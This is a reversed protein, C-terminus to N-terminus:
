KKQLIGRVLTRTQIPSLRSANDGGRSFSSLGSTSGVLTVLVDQNRGDQNERPPNTPRPIGGGRVCAYFSSLAGTSPSLSDARIEADSGFEDCSPTVTVAGATTGNDVFDVLVQAPNNPSGNRADVVTGTEDIEFPWQLFAGVQPRAYGTNETVTTANDAFQSLKYRYIQAEGQWDTDTTDTDIAYVVLSYTSGAICVTQLLPDASGDAIASASTRCLNDIGVPLPDTRWFALVPRRTASNMAAPIYNAIGPCVTSYNTSSTPIGTGALCQGNYVFVAERLDDNIFDLATQMDQQVQSRGADRANVETLQIVLSLLLVVIISGIIMAVLLEILTFGAMKRRKRLLSRLHRLWQFSSRRAM